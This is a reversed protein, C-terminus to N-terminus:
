SVNGGRPLNVQSPLRGAAQEVSRAPAKYEEGREEDKHRYDGKRIVEALHARSRRLHAVQMGVLASVLQQQPLRRLVAGFHPLCLGMDHAQYTERFRKYALGAACAAVMRHEIESAYLCAPCPGSSEIADAIARGLGDPAARSGLAKQVMDLLSGAGSTERGQSSSAAELAALVRGFVDNYILATGLSDKLGLWEQGHPACYGLSRGLRERLSVDTVSEYSIAELYASVAQRTVRGVPCGPQGLALLVDFASHDMPTTPDALSYDAEIM